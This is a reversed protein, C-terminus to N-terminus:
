PQDKHASGDITSKKRSETYFDPYEVIDELNLSHM